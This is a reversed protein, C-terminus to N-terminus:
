LGVWYELMWEMITVPFFLLNLPFPLSFGNSVQWYFGVMALGWSMASVKTGEEPFDAALYKHKKALRIGNVVALNGGRAASHFGSIIRQLFWAFTVGVSRFLYRTMTPAWKQLEVPLVETLAPEVKNAFNTHLMSGISVGLTVAQAFQVRLTAVVAMMSAWILSLAESAQDPNVAKMVLYVKRHVLEQKTIQKVDAIGDNDDDVLDDKASADRAVVYNSWIVKTAEVMREWTTMRVAEVAAVLTVYSGGFFCLILGFAFPFFQQPDYPEMKKWVMLLFEWAKVVYPYMADLGNCVMIVHPKAQKIYTAYKPLRDCASDMMAGVASEEEVKKSQAQKKVASM